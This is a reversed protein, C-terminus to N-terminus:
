KVVEDPSDIFLKGHTTTSVVVPNEGVESAVQLYHSAEGENGVSIILSMRKDILTRIFDDEFQGEGTQKIIVGSPRKRLIEELTLSSFEVRSLWSYSITSNVNLLTDAVTESVDASLLLSSYKGGYLASFSNLGVGTQPEDVIIVVHGMLSVARKLSIRAVDTILEEPAITPKKKHTHRLISEARSPVTRVIQGDDSPDIIKPSEEAMYPFFWNFENYLEDYGFANEILPNEPLSEKATALIERFRDMGYTRIHNLLAEEQESAVVVNCGEKRAQKITKWESQTVEKKKFHSKWM